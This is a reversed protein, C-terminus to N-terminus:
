MFKVIIIGLLNRCFGMVMWLVIWLEVIKEFMFLGVLM